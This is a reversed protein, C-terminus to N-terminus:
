TDLASPDAIILSRSSVVRGAPISADGALLRALADRQDHGTILWLLQESRALAPYTLTMRRHGQYESTASVLRDTVELVPDDPILSATHGDPGLGLHILDFCDPLHAEYDRSGKVLDHEVPMAVINAEITGLSRQLNTLNREASQARVAREDVQYITTLAWPMPMTTLAEFMPWPTHGGSVAMSFTGKALIAQEAREVIFAAARHAASAATDFARLEHLM